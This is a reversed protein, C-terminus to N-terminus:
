AVTKFCRLLDIDFVSFNDPISILLWSLNKHGRRLQLMSFLLSFRLSVIPSAYYGSAPIFICINLVVM